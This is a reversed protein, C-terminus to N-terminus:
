HQRLIYPVSRRNYLAVVRCLGMGPRLGTSRESSSGNCQKHRGLMCWNHIALRAKGKVPLHRVPIYEKCFRYHSETHQMYSQVYAVGLTLARRESICHATSMISTSSVKGENEAFGQGLTERSRACTRPTATVCHRQQIRPAHRRM